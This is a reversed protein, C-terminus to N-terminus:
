VTLTLWINTQFKTQFETQFETPISDSNLKIETRLWDSTRDGIQFNPQVAVLTATCGFDVPKDIM